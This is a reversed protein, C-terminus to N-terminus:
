TDVDGQEHDLEISDIELEMGSVIELDAGGCRGCLFLPEELVSVRGCRACSVRVPVEEIELEAGELATGRSAVSFCFELNGQVVGRLRGIRLDILRVVPRPWVASRVRRRALEEDVIGIIGQAISMEHV